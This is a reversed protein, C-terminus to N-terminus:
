EARAPAREPPAPRVEPASPMWVQVRRDNALTGNKCDAVAATADYTPGTVLIMVRDDDLVETSSSRQLAQRLLEKVKEARARALAVNSDIRRGLATSLRVRDASGILILSARPSTKLWKEVFRGAWEDAAKTNDECGHASWLSYDSEGIPFPPSWYAYREWGESIFTVPPPPPPPPRPPPAPPHAIAFRDHAALAALFIWALYAFAPMYRTAYSGVRRSLHTTPVGSRAMRFKDYLENELADRARKLCRALAHGLYTSLSLVGSIVAGSLAVGAAFWRRTGDPLHEANVIAVFAGLLFAQGTMLWGTRAAISGYEGDIHAQVRDLMACLWDRREKKDQAAATAGLANRVRQLAEHQPETLSAGQLTDLDRETGGSGQLPTPDHSLDVHDYPPGRDAAVIERTFKELYREYVVAGIVIAFVVAWGGVPSFTLLTSAVAWPTILTYVVPRVASWISRASESDQKAAANM